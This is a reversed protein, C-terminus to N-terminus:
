FIDEPELFETIDINNKKRKPKNYFVDEASTEIDQYGEFVEDQIYQMADYDIVEGDLVKEQYLRMAKQLLDPRHKKERTYIDQPEFTDMSWYQEITGHNNTYYIAEVQEFPIGKVNRPNVEIDTNNKLRVAYKMGELKTYREKREQDEVRELAEKYLKDIVLKGGESKKIADMRKDAKNRLEDDDTTFYIIFDEVTLRENSYWRHTRTEKEVLEKLFEHTRQDREFKEKSEWKGTQITKEDYDFPVIKYINVNQERTNHYEGINKYIIERQVVDKIIRIASREDKGLIKAWNSYSCKFGSKWKSTVYYIYMDQVKDFDLFKKYTIRDTYNQHKNPDTIKKEEDVGDNSLELNNVSLELLTNNKIDGISIDNEVIFVKKDLLEKLRNLIRQKNLTDSKNFRIPMSQNIIDINTRICDDYMRMTYLFSYLYVSEDELFFTSEPESFCNYIMIWNENFNKALM